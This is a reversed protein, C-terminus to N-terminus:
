IKKPTGSSNPKIELYHLLTTPDINLYLYGGGGISWIRGEWENNRISEIEEKKFEGKNNFDVGIQNICYNTVNEIEIYFLRRGLKKSSGLLYYDGYLYNEKSMSFQVHPFNAFYPLESKVKCFYKNDQETVYVIEKSKLDKELYNSLNNKIDNEKNKIFSLYDKFEDINIILTDVDFLKYILNAKEKLGNDETVLVDCYAAYYAHQSDSTTSNFNAKKNKEKDLGLSNLMYYASLFTHYQKDEENVNSIKINESIYELFSKKFISKSFLDNINEHNIENPLYPFVHKHNSKLFRRLDKYGTKSHQMEKYLNIGSNVVQHLDFNDKLEIFKEIYSKMPEPYHDPYVQSTDINELSKKLEDTKDKFDINQILDSLSDFIEDNESINKFADNPDTIYFNTERDWYKCLYNNRALKGIFELDIYKEETTDRKLDGLNAASYIFTHKENNKLISNLFSSHVSSTRM